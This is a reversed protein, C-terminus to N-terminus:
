GISSLEADDFALPFGGCNSLASVGSGAERLDYGLFKFSGLNEPISDIHDGPNRYVGLLRKNTNTATARKVFDIDTFFDSMWEDEVCPWYDGFAMGLVPPCLMRDLSILERLQTLGSWAIDKSWKEGDNPGFREVAIFYPQM